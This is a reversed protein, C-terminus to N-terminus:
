TKSGAAVPPILASVRLTPPAGVQILQLDLVQGVRQQDNLFFLALSAGEGHATLFPLVGGGRLDLPQPSPFCHPGSRGADFEQERGSRQPIKREVVVFGFGGVCFAVAGFTRGHIAGQNM